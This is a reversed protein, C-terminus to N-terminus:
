VKVRWHVMAYTVPYWEQSDLHPSEEAFSRSVKRNLVQVPKEVTFDPNSVSTLTDRHDVGLVKENRESSM